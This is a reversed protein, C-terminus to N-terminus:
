GRRRRRDGAGGKGANSVTVSFDRRWGRGGGGADGGALRRAAFSPVPPLLPTTPSPPAPPAPPSPFVASGDVEALAPGAAHAASAPADETAASGGARAPVPDFVAGVFARGDSLAVVVTQWGGFVSLPRFVPFITPVTPGTDHVVYGAGANQRCM